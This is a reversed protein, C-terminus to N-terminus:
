TPLFPCSDLHQTRVGEAPANAHSSSALDEMEVDPMDFYMTGPNPAPPWNMFCDSPSQSHAPQFLASAVPLIRYKFRRACCCLGRGRFM